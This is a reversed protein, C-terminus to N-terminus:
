DVPSYSFYGNDRIRIVGRQIGKKYLDLIISSLSDMNNSLEQVTGRAELRDYILARVQNNEVDNIIKKFFMDHAKMTHVFKSIENYIKEEEVLLKEGVIFDIVTFGELYTLENNEKKIEIVYGDQDLMLYQGLFVFCAIAEREEIKIDISNPYVKRITAKRIFPDKEIRYAMADVNARIINVPQEMDLLEYIDDDSFRTNNEYSINISDRICM